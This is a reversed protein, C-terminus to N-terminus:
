VPMSSGDTERSPLTRETVKLRGSLRFESVAGITCVSHSTSSWAARRDPQAPPAGEAPCAAAEARARPDARLVLRAARTPNRVDVWQEFRDVAGDRLDDAQGFRHHGDHVARGGADPTDRASAQSM